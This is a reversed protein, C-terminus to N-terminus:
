SATGAIESAGEYGRWVSRLETRILRMLEAITLGQM